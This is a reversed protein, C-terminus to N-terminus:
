CPLAQLPGGYGQITVKFRVETTRRFRRGEMRQGNRNGNRLIVGLCTSQLDTYHGYTSSILLLAYLVSCLACLVSCLAVVQKVWDAFHKVGQTLLSRKDRYRCMPHLKSEKALGPSSIVVKAM